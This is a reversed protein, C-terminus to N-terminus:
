MNTSTRKKTLDELSRGHTEEVLEDTVDSKPLTWADRMEKFTEFPVQLGNSLMVTQIGM